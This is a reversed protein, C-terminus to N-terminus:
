ALSQVEIPTLPVLNSNKALKIVVQPVDKAPCAAGFLYGQATTCGYTRVFAAQEKTEIGEAVTDMGLSSGLGILARVIAADDISKGLGAVFTQDIKLVNVPFKKLHTLSAFGTGFDDLAICVGADSLKTLARLVHHSGRGLFVSETVEVEIRNPSLGRVELQTLLREAFDDAAFDGSCTNLAIKEFDVGAKVWGQINNLVRVMMREGIAMALETDLFAPSIMHPLGLDGGVQEWRLLAEFGSLEGTQLDVKPQYHPFVRDQAIAARALVKMNIEREFDTEMDPHFVVACGRKAKAVGLALDACKILSEVTAAQDPYLAVGISARCDILRGNHELKERLRRNLSAVAKEVQSGTRVSTLVIGFEDGGLRAVTDGSRVVDRLRSAFSCLVADGADHGLSDNIQKFHDVDILFMAVGVGSQEAIQIAEAM